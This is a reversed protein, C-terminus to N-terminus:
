ELWGTIVRDIGCLDKKVATRGFGADKMLSEVEAAQGAGIEMALFGAERLRDPAGTIVRRVVDLGDAGGDLATNPDNDRVVPEVILIDYTPIYPPNAVIADFRASADLPDYLDGQFVSLRDSVGLREANDKTLEAALPSIDVATCSASELFKLLTIGAVGCGCCLDLIAAGDDSVANRLENTGAEVLTETEPRPIFVGKEVKFFYSFFQCDGVVLQLAEGGAVRKGMARIDDLEQTTVPRDHLAYIDIRNLGLTKSIIIESCLRSSEVGQRQFYDTLMKHAELLAITRPPTM